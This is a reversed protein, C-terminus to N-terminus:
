ASVLMINMVGVGGVLLAVRSLAFLLMLVLRHDPGLHRTLSRHRFIASTTRRRTPVKRRRRLLETLEDKM